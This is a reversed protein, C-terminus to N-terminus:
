LSVEGFIVKLIDELSVIGIERQDRGLVIALRQGNGQMRRLADELRLDERLFLAPKVCSGAPRLPDYDTEYLFTRLSIVGVIRRGTQDEQWVPFRTFNTERCTKLVEALPAQARVSVVKDMPVTVSGVTFTQLDLVRNIMAREETTLNQSSEQMVWRLESRTGFVHSSFGPRGTLRLLVISLWEVLSVLPSLSLHVFRFPVALLLCLRNPFQRFLMKPLLDCLAYFLFVVILFLFAFLAPERDAMRYVAIILLSFVVFMALTNGILITWLFNEPDELYRQLVQAAYRGSRRQQRVRLRSLAFVGAEMGSLMFSLGLCLVGLLLYLLQGEM